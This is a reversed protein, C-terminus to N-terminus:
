QQRLMKRVETMLLVNAVWNHVAKRSLYKRGYVPFMENHADKVNLGRTWLFRVVSLEGETTCEESVTVIKVVLILRQVHTHADVVKVTM